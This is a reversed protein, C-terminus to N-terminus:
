GHTMETHTLTQIITELQFGRSAKFLVADGSVIRDKLAMAGSTADPCCTVQAVSMGASVAAQGIMNGLPGIAILGDPRADNAVFRGLSEHEAQEHDGLELMGGLVIWRRTAPLELFTSIAARMSLPNANYADNILTVGNVHHTQWRMPMSEFAALGSVVDACEVGNHRAVALAMIANALNHTGPVPLRILMRIGTSREHVTAVGDPAIGDVHYDGKNSTGITTIPCACYSALQQFCPLDSNLFARGTAPLARLLAGKEHAIAEVTGFHAIHVAAVNTVIAQDPRLTKCLGEIEGPHNTGVEFVGHTTNSEMALLSLPLGIDNNWNGRTRATPHRRMLLQATMEKATSKGASGTVGIVTLKLTTRYGIAMATLAAHTNAVRLVPFDPDNAARQWMTDVIAGVAGRNAAESLFQHGDLREGRIALFLHGQQLQRSDHVIGTVVPPPNGEWTGSAWRALDQPLFHPM